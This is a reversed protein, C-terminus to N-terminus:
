NEIVTNSVQHVNRDGAPYSFCLKTLQSYRWITLMFILVLKNGGIQLLFVMKSCCHLPFRIIPWQTPMYWVEVKHNVPPGFQRCLFLIFNHYFLRYLWVLRNFIPWPLVFPDSKTNCVASPTLVYVLPLIFVASKVIKWHIMTGNGDNLALRLVALRLAIWVLRLSKWNLDVTVM